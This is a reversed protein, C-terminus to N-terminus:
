QQFPENRKQENEFDGKRLCVQIIIDKMDDDLNNIAKELRDM